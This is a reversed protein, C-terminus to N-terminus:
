EDGGVMGPALPIDAQKLHRNFVEQPERTIPKVSKSRGEHVELQYCEFCIVCDITRGKEVARIAHRPWFCKAMKGDSRAMGQKLTAIIEKRKELDKVEIKGLVPYGHFKEEVKPEKGPEFDRGDISYLTLQDPVELNAVSGSGCGIFAAGIISVCIPILFRTRVGGRGGEGFLWSLLRSVRFFGAHRASAGIAHGTQQLTQNPQVKCGTVL